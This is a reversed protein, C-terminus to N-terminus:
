RVWIDQTYWMVMKESPEYYEISAVAAEAEEFSAFFEACEKSFTPRFERPRPRQQRTPRWGYPAGLLGASHRPGENNPLLARTALM